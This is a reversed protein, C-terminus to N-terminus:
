SCDDAITDDVSTTDQANSSGPVGLLLPFSIQLRKRDDKSRFLGSTPVGLITSAMLLTSMELKEIPNINDQIVTEMANKEFRHTACILVHLESFPIELSGSRSLADLLDFARSKEFAIQSKDLSGQHTKSLLNKQRIRTWGSNATKITTSRIAANKDHLEIARDLVKPMAAFVVTDSELPPSKANADEFNNRTTDSSNENTSIKSDRYKPGKRSISQMSMPMEMKCLAREHFAYANGSGSSRSMQMQSEAHARGPPPPAAASYPVCKKLPPAASGSQRLARRAGKGSRAEFAEMDDSLSLFREELAMDDDSLSELREEFAMDTKMEQEKLQEKKQDAIVDLVSKVHERVNEVQDKVSSKNGENDYDCSVLDSPVQYEVFLETLDETLKMEKTLSDEPLGLLKELQPKIQVICVGLVSSDLQMSRFSKAFRQQEPSLSGIADKFETATPIENLLLPIHIEDKNRLIIADKPQMHNQSTMVGVLLVFSSFQRARANLRISGSPTRGFRHNLWGHLFTKGTLAFTTAANLPVKIPDVSTVERVHTSISEVTSTNDHNVEEEISLIGDPYHEPRRITYCFQEPSPNFMKENHYRMYKDLDSSNVEKGIAAVLQKELMAEIYKISEIFTGVLEMIHSSLVCMIAEVSSILKNTEPDPFEKQLKGQTEALTRAQENLFSTTDMVSLVSSNGEQNSVTNTPPLSLMAKSESEIAEGEVWSDAKNDVLLPIVPVFIGKADDGSTYLNEPINYKQYNRSFFIGLSCTWHKVSEFFSMAQEIQFNRSPTKTKANDPSTDIAFHSKLEEADIQQLMWTLSLEMPPLEKKKPFPPPEQSQSPSSVSESTAGKYKKIVSGVLSKGKKASHPLNRIFMHTAGKRSKIVQRNDVDTGSYISLEWETEIKYHQKTVRKVIREITSKHTTTESTGFESAVTESEQTEKAFPLPEDVVEEKVFTCSESSSFRLTTAKDKSIDGISQLVEKTLGLQELVAMLAVITTNTLLDALKYKDVYDHDVEEALRVKPSRDVDLVRQVSVLANRVNAEFVQAQFDSYSM